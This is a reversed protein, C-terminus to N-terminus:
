QAPARKSLMRQLSRRHLNLKAAARTINDDSMKLVFQIHEWQVEDPQMPRQEIDNLNLGELFPEILSRPTTHKPIYDVAGSKIADVAGATSPLRTTMVCRCHPVKALFIKLIRASTQNRGVDIIAFDPRFVNLLPDVDDLRISTISEFRNEIAIRHVANGFDIDEDVILLKPDTM